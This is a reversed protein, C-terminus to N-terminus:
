CRLQEARSYSNVQEVSAFTPMRDFGPQGAPAALAMSRCGCSSVAEAFPFALAAASLAIAATGLDPSAIEEPAVLCQCARAAAELLTEAHRAVAM